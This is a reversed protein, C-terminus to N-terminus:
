CIAKVYLLGGVNPTSVQTWILSCNDAESLSGPQAAGVGQYGLTIFLIMIALVSIIKM